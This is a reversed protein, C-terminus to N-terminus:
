AILLFTINGSMGGQLFQAFSADNEGNNYLCSQVQTDKLTLKMKYKCKKIVKGLDQLVPREVPHLSFFSYPQIYLGAFFFFTIPEILVLDFLDSHIHEEEWVMEIELINYVTNAPMKKPTQLEPFKRILYSSQTKNLSWLTLLWTSM